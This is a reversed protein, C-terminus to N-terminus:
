NKYVEKKIKEFEHKGGLLITSYESVKKALKTMSKVTERIEWQANEDERTRSLHYLQRINTALLVRRRHANTLCYEAAKGYKPLFEYYLNSSRDCVEKFEKTAKIEEIILPISYGLEPNYDQKLLTNMRHRKLQAFCSASVIAEYILGSVEFERPVKDYKSLYKLSAKFFDKAKGNQILLFALAYCEQISKQSNAHLLAALINLDFDNCVILTVNKETLLKIKQEKCTPDLQYLKYWLATNNEKFAKAVIEKLNKKTFKFNDDQLENGTIKKFLEPDSLQILSPAIKVVENYLKAAFEREEALEGYKNKRIALELTQGTYSCGLQTETALSLIYRADEKAKKKLDKLKEKPFKKRLHHFIKEFYKFYCENQVKVLEEFKKLDRKSFEKPKVYDGKLTVWRQSKETYGALRREEISEVALRSVGLINFNFIAHDAISHHGMGLINCVSARAKGTENIAEELLEDISKKSKSIRAYAASITEPTLAQKEKKTLRKGKKIKDLLKKPVNIGALKVKM